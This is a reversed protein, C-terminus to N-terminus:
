KELPPLRRIAAKGFPTEYFFVAAEARTLAATPKTIKRKIGLVKAADGRRMPQNPNKVKKRATHKAKAVMDMFEGSTVKRNPKFTGDPFGKIVGATALLEIKNKAWYKAPIDKFKVRKIKKAVVRPKFRVPAPVRAPEVTSAATEPKVLEYYASEVVEPSSEKIGVYGISFYSTVAGSLDGQRYFAYDFTLGKYNLGLGGTLNTYSESNNKASQDVGARLALYEVPWWELGLHLLLPGEPIKSADLDIFGKDKLVKFSSGVTYNPDIREVQGDQYNMDGIVNQLSAGLSVWSNFVYKLSLDLAKGSGNIGEYGPVDKSIGRSIFRIDGGLSLNSMAMKSFALLLEQDTFSVTETSLTVNSATRNRYGIGGVGEWFSPAVGGLSSFITDSVPETYMSILNTKTLSALGAPNVFLGSGDDSLAVFANGMAMPRAGTGGSLYSANASGFLLGLLILVSLNRCIKRIKSDRQLNIEV